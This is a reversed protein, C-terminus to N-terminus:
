FQAIADFLLSWVFTKEARFRTGPEDLQPRHGPNYKVCVGDKVGGLPCQDTKTIFHQTQHGAKFGIKFKVYKAPQIALDLRGFLEAYNEIDTMGNWAEMARFEQSNKLDNHVGDTIGDDNLDAPNVEVGTVERNHFYNSTGLADFLPTYTRGESHYTAGGGVVIIFRRDDSPVEWPVLELGFDFTGEVPPMTNLANSGLTLDTDKYFGFMGDIGMFPEMLGYRKSFRLGLRVQNMNRSIGGADGDCKSRQLNGVCAAELPKGVAFRGEVFATFTPYEAVRSQDLISWWLGTVLQDVGSRQPSKLNEGFYAPSHSAFGVRKSVSRDDSLIVPVDFKLMVDRFLGVDMGLNLINQVHKYTGFRYTPYYDDKAATGNRTERTIDGKEQFREYGIRINLDFPDGNDKDFADIVNTYEGARAASAGINMMSFCLLFVPIKSAKNM